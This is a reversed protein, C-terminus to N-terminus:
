LGIPLFSASTVSKMVNNITRNTRGAVVSAMMDQIAIMKGFIREFSLNSVNGDVGNTLLFLDGNEDRKNSLRWVLIEINRASNNLKQQDLFDLMYFEPLNNYSYRIMGVLGAMVAFVRDGTFKQDFCLLMADVVQKNDLEEFVLARNMNFIQAVRSEITEGPKKELERPNRKYLKIMLEQMLANIENLHSDAIMDIDTKAVNKIKFSGNLCGPTITSILISIAIGFIINEKIYSGAALKVFRLFEFFLLCVLLSTYKVHVRIHSFIMKKSFM